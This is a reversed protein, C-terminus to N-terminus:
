VRKQANFRAIGSEDIMDQETKEVYNVFELWRKRKLKEVVKKEKSALTLKRKKNEMRIYLEKLKMKEKGVKRNLEELYSQYLLVYPIEVKGCERKKKLEMQCEMEEGKLEGLLKREEEWRKVMEALERKLRKEKRERYKLLFQFPFNFKKM